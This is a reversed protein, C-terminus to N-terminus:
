LVVCEPGQGGTSCDGVAIVASVHVQEHLAATIAVLGFLEAAPMAFRQTQGAEKLSDAARDLAQQVETPWWESLLWVVNPSSSHMAYGGVGDKGSADSVVM